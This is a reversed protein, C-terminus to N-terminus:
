RNWLYCVMAALTRGLDMVVLEDVRICVWGMMIVVTMWEFKSSIRYITWVVVVLIRVSGDGGFWAPRVKKLGLFDIGCIMWWGDTLVEMVLYPRMLNCPICSFSFLNHHTKILVCLSLCFSSPPPPLLHQFSHFHSSSPWTPCLPM